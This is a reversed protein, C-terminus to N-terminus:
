HYQRWEFYENFIELFRNFNHIISDLLGLDEESDEIIYFCSDCDILWEEDIMFNCVALPSNSEQEGGEDTPPSVCVLLQADYEAYVTHFLESLLLMCSQINDNERDSDISVNEVDVRLLEKKKYSRRCRNVQEMNLERYDRDHGMATTWYGRTEVDIDANLLSVRITKYQESTLERMETLMIVRNQRYRTNLRVNQSSKRVFMTTSDTEQEIEMVEYCSGALSILQGQLYIQDLQEKCYQPLQHKEQPDISIYYCPNKRNYIGLPLKEIWFERCTEGRKGISHDSFIYKRVNPLGTFYTIQEALQRKDLYGSPMLEQELQIQGLTRCINCIDAERIRQREMVWLLQLIVNRRSAYYAPFTQAIRRVNQYFQELNERIFDLFFFPPSFVAILAGSKGRSAFQHSVESPNCLEDEVLICAYEERPCIEERTGFVLKGSQETKSDMEDASGFIGYRMAIDKIPVSDRGYWRVKEMGNGLLVKAVQIQLCSSLDRGPIDEEDFFLCITQKAPETTPFVIHINVHLLHSYIDELGEANDNCIVFSCSPLLIRRLNMIGFMQKYLLASADILLVMRVQSLFANNEHLLIPNGLDEAVMIGIEYKRDNRGVRGIRWIGSDGIINQQEKLIWNELEKESEDDMPNGSIVLCYGGSQLTRFMPLYFSYGIDQYFRTAFIVGVKEKLLVKAPKALAENITEGERKCAEIYYDVLNEDPSREGDQWNFNQPHEILDFLRTNKEKIKDPFQEKLVVVAKQMRSLTGYKDDPDLRRIENFERRTDLTCALWFQTVIYLPFVVINYCVTGKTCRLQGFMGLLILVVIVVMWLGRYWQYNEKLFYRHLLPDYEYINGFLRLSSVKSVKNAAQQREEEFSSHAVESDNVINGNHSRATGNDHNSSVRNDNSDITNVRSSGNNIHNGLHLAKKLQVVMANRLIENNIFEYIALILLTVLAEWVNKGDSEQLSFPLINNIVDCIWHFIFYFDHFETQVFQDVTNTFKNVMNAVFELGYFLRIVLTMSSMIGFANLLIVFFNRQKFFPSSRDASHGYRRMVLYCWGLFFLITLWLSAGWQDAIYSFVGKVGDALDDIYNTMFICMRRGEKM